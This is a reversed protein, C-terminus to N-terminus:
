HFAKTGESFLRFVGGAEQPGANMTEACNRKAEVISPALAVAHIETPAEVAIAQATSRRKVRLMLIAASALRTIPQM